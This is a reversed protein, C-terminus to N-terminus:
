ALQGQGAAPQPARVDLWDLVLQRVEERREDNLLEHYGGEVEHFTKDSAPLAEIFRRSGRPDTLRDESGHFVLTPVQWRAYQPWLEGSLRLMSAATLAPVKGHYMTTDAEYAAVEDALRSLGGTALVTTGLGPAVRALLPALRKLWPQEDEGVLLAPSSLIVGAVGRPDRAVSAAAVLGGMSHGLLYLPQPLARMAERAKLHDEVLQAVDVVARRGGSRGHGREDYAYVTLGAQVLSPILAHYREVYRGAYEGFGHTLLVNARPALARWVYGEVPAGPVAWHESQM